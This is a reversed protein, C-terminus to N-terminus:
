RDNPQTYEDELLLIHSFDCRQYGNFDGSSRKECRSIDERAGAKSESMLRKKSAEKEGM